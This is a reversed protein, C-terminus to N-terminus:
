LQIGCFIIAREFFFCKCLEQRLLFLTLQITEQKAMCLQGRIAAVSYLVSDSTLGFQICKLGDWYFEMEM